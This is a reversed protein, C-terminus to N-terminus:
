APVVAVPIASLVVMGTVPDYGRETGVL